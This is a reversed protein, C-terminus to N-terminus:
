NTCDNRVDDAEYIAANSYHRANETKGVDVVGDLPAVSLVTAVAIGPQRALHRLEEPDRIEAESPVM